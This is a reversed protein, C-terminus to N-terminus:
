YRLSYSLIIISSFLTKSGKYSETDERNNKLYGIPSGGIFTLDINSNLIVEDVLEKMAEAYYSLRLTIERTYDTNHIIGIDFRREYVGCGPTEEQWAKASFVICTEPMNNSSLEVMDWFVPIDEFDVNNTIAKGLVEMISAIKSLNEGYVNDRM